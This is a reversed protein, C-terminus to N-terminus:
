LICGITSLGHKGKFNGNNGVSGYQSKAEVDDCATPMAAGPVLRTSTPSGLQSVCQKSTLHIYQICIYMCTVYYRYTHTQYYKICMDIDVYTHIYIYIHTYM